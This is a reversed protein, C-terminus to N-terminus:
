NRPLILIPVGFDEGGEPQFLLMDLGFPKGVTLTLGFDSPFFYLRERELTKASTLLRAPPDPPSHYEARLAVGKTTVLELSIEEGDFFVPLAGRASSVMIEETGCRVGLWPPADRKPMRSLGAGSIKKRASALIGEDDSVLWAALEVDGGTRYADWYIRQRVTDRTVSREAAAANILSAVDDLKVGNAASISVPPGSVEIRQPALSRILDRCGDAPPSVACLALVLSILM